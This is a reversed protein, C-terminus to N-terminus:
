NNIIFLNIHNNKIFKIYSANKNPIINIIIIFIIIVVIISKSYSM